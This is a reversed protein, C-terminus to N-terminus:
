WQAAEARTRVDSAAAAINICELLTQQTTFPASMLARIPTSRLEASCSAMRSPLSLARESASEEERSRKKPEECRCFIVSLWLLDHLKQELMSRVDIYLVCPLLRGCM